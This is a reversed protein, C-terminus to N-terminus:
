RFSPFVNHVKLQCFFLLQQFLHGSLKRSLATFRFRSFQILGMRKQIIGPILHGLDAQKADVVVFFVAAGTVVGNGLHDDDLFQGLGAQGVAGCVRQQAITERSEDLLETRFLLLRLKNGLHKVVAYDAGEAQSLRVGARVGGTDVGGRNLVTVAIDDIAGFAEDSGAIQGFIM